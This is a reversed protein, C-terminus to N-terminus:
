HLSFNVLFRFSYLHVLCFQPREGTAELEKQEATLGLRGTMVSLRVVVESPQLVVVIVPRSFCKCLHDHSMQIRTVLKSSKGSSPRMSNKKKLQWDLWRIMQDDTQQKCEDTRRRNNKEKRISNRGQKRYKVSWHDDKFFNALNPQVCHNLQTINKVVVPTMKLWLLSCWIMIYYNQWFDSISRFSIFAM